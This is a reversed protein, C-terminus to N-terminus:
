NFKLLELIKEIIEQISLTNFQSIIGMIWQILNIIVLPNVGQQWLGQVVQWLKGLQGAQALGSQNYHAQEVADFFDKEM